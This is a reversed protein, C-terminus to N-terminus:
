QQRGVEADGPIDEQAAFRRPTREEVVAAHLSVRAPEDVFVAKLEIGGGADVLEARGLFLEDLDTAGEMACRAQEDEVLGGRREGVRFGSFDEMDCLVEFFATHADDVDRVAEGFETGNGIADRDEAVASSDMAARDGSERRVLDNMVHDAAFNGGDVLAFTERRSGLTEADIKGSDAEREMGPLNNADGTEHAGSFPTAAFYTEPDYGQKLLNYYPVAYGSTSDPDAFALSGGLGTHGFARAGPGFGGGENLMFGAGFAMPRGM